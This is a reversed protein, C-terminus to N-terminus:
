MRWDGVETNDSNSINSHLLLEMNKKIDPNSLQFLGSKPYCFIALFGPKPIPFVRNSVSSAIASYRKKISAQVLSLKQLSISSLQLKEIRIKSHALNSLTRM